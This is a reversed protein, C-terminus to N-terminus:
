VGWFQFIKSAHNIALGSIQRSTNMKILMTNGNSEITGDAGCIKSINSSLVVATVIRTVKSGGVVGLPMIM